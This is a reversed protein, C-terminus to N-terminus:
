IALAITITYANSTLVAVLAMVLVLPPFSLLSATITDIITEVWGRFYAALLGFLGGILIVVLTGVVSIGLSIRAGYIIRALVSRGVSDTGLFEPFRGGPSQNPVATTDTHSPLPLLDAFVALFVLVALWTGTVWVFLGAKRDNRLGPIRRRRLLGRSKREPNPDGPIPLETH